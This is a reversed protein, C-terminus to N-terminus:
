RLGGLPHQQGESGDCDDDLNNCVEPTCIPSICGGPIEEDVEGDCDDDLGNCEEKTGVEPLADCEVGSGDSKCVYQGLKLCVGMLGNNCTQGVLPFDEDVLNDCDDDEGNCTESPPQSDALIQLM